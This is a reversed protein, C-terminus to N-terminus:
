ILCVLVATDVRDNVLRTRMCAGGAGQTCDKMVNSSASGTKRAITNNVKYLIIIIYSSSTSFAHM